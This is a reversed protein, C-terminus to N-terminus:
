PRARCAHAIRRAWPGSDYRELYTGGGAIMRCAGAGDAGDIAHLFHTPSIAVGLHSSVGFLRFILVPYDLSAPGQAYPAMREAILGEIVHGAAIDTPAYLGLADPLEAGFATRAAWMACGMCDWGELDRGGARYPTALATM